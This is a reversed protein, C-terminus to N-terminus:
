GAAILAEMDQDDLVYDIVGEDSDLTFTNGTDFMGATHEHFLLAGAMDLAASGTAVQDYQEAPITASSAIYGADILQKKVVWWFAGFTRYEQPKRELLAAINRKAKELWAAQSQSETAMALAQRLTEETYIKLKM